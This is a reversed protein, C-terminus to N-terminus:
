EVPTYGAATIAASVEEKTKGKYKPKQMAAAISVIGKSKGTPPPTTGDGLDTRLQVKPVGRHLRAITKDFADLQRLAMSKDPTLLGPLTDRIANRMDESGQGAGLITRMAMANEALQRTSILFDQQDPTLSGVAGSAILQDLAAHPDDAKMAMVIKVKMDEPFDEKMGVIAQRTLSSTGIIDQMLNEKALSKDAEGAPMYRGPNKVMETYPVYTPANGNASDLVSLPAMQRAQGYSAARIQALKMQFDQKKKAFDNSGKFMAAVEPPNNLDGENYRKGEDQDIVQGTNVDFKLGKAGVTPKYDPPMPSATIENTYPNRLSQYYKGDSGKYPKAGTVPVSKVFPVGSITQVLQEIVEDSAGHDKAWKVRSDNLANQRAIEAQTQQASVQEPSLPGAAVISQAQKEDGAVGQARKAAEKKIRDQPNTIRLADTILHGYREIMGPNTDRHFLERVGHLNTQMENFADNYEPSGKPLSSIKQQLNSLNTAYLQAKHQRYEESMEQKHARKQALADYGQQYGSEFAAQNAM